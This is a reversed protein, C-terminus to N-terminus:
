HIAPSEMGGKAPCLYERQSVDKYASVFLKRVAESM